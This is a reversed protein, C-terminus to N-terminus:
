KQYWRIALSIPLGVCMMHVTLGVAVSAVSTKPRSVASLPLVILNMFLYVVVGYLIGSVVAQDTLFDLNRSAAYFAASAGFAVMFHSLLGLGASGIGRQFSDPGLLGSAVYQLVRIPSAGRLLRSTVFAASLDLLGSLLGALLIARYAIPEQVSVLTTVAKV